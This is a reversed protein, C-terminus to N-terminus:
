GTYLQGAVTISKWIAIDKAYYVNLAEIQEDTLTPKDEENSVNSSKPTSSLGLTTALIDLDQEWRYLRVGARLNDTVRKIHANVPAHSNLMDIVDDVSKGRAARSFGSKFREIPNRLVVCVEGVMAPTTPLILQMPAEKEAPKASALQKKILYPFYKEALANSWATSGTRPIFALSKNNPLSWFKM